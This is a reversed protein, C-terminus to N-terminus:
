YWGFDNVAQTMMKVNEIPSNPPLECGQSFIFGGPLKKGKEVVDRTANYVEEPTATQIIAPELNGMIIDNPFYDAATALEVEHGISIIGPDGFSIKAWHPLNLNHEGCIHVYIHRCGIDLWKDCIEKIYPMAFTEFHKPSIIQNSAGPEGLYPLVGETGFAKKWYDAMEIYYDVVMRMLHHVSDPNKMIWKSMNEIGSICGAQTFPGGTWASVNFPGDDPDEKATLRCYELKLPAMGDKLVDPMKLNFVEEPTEVAFRTIMPAQAFEGSPNKMEGGFESALTTPFAMLPYFVWDFDDCVKHQAKLYIEPETYAQGITGGTYVTCFGLAIPLSPIRDPKERRLLAELRERNTMKAKKEAMM